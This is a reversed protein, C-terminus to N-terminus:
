DRIEIDSYTEIPMNLPFDPDELDDFWSFMLVNLNSYTAALILMKESKERDGSDISDFISDFLPDLERPMKELKQKLYAIPYRHRFGDLLSRVVLHVWLFVGDASNVIDRVIERCGENTNDFNSEKEFMAM